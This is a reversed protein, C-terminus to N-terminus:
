MSVGSGAQGSSKTIDLGSVRGQLAEMPNSSPTLVIDDSKVSAIAGTLDRKKQTGYGVVVLEDLGIADPEMKIGMGQKASVTITRYGTYSIELITGSPVNVSFKGDIDTIAGVGSGKKKITVGIMPEGTEDVITGNISKSQQVVSPPTQIGRQGNGAMMATPTLLVTSVLMVKSTIGAFAVPNKLKKM